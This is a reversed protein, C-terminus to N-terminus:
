CHKVIVYKLRSNATNSQFNVHEQLQCHQFHRHPHIQHQCQQFHRHHHIQHHCQQFHKHTYKVRASSLIDPHIQSQCQQFHRSMYKTNGTSFIHTRTRAAPPTTAACTQLHEQHQWHQFYRYTVSHVQHKCHQIHYIYTVSHVQHQCHQIHYRYTVSHVQHQCHQIDTLSLTYKISATSFTAAHIQLQCHQSGTLASTSTFCVWTAACISRGVQCPFDVFESLLDTFSHHCWTKM